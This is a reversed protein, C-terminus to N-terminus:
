PARRLRAAPIVKKPNAASSWSLTAEAGGTNEFYELKIPVKVGKTLAITGSWETVGQNVWKDVLLVNNVWLRAGDDTKSYFTFTETTTPVVDGTWRVSFTDAGIAPDPSGTSWQFVVRQDTRTV